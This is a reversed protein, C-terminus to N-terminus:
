SLRYSPKIGGNYTNLRLTKILTTTTLGINKVENQNNDSIYFYLFMWM